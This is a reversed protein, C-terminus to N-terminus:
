LLYEGRDGLKFIYYFLFVHLYICLLDLCWIDCYFNVDECYADGEIFAM